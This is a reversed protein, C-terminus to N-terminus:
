VSERSLEQLFCGKGALGRAMEGKERWQWELLPARAGGLWSRVHDGAGMGGVQQMRFFDGVGWFGQRVVVERYEKATVGGRLLDHLDM